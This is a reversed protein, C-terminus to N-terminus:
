SQREGMNIQESALKGTEIRRTLARRVQKSANLMRYLEARLENQTPESFEWKERIADDLDEWAQWLMPDDLLRQAHAADHIEAHRDARDQEDV